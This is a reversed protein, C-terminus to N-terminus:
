LTSALFWRVGSPSSSMMHRLRESTTMTSTLALDPSSYPSARSDMPGLFALRRLAAAAQHSDSRPRKGQATRKSTTVTARSLWPAWPADVM